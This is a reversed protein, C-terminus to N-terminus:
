GIPIVLYYQANVESNVVVDLATSNGNKALQDKVYTSVPLMYTPAFSQTGYTHSSTSIPISSVETTYQSAWEKIWLNSAVDSAQQSVFIGLAVVWFWWSGMSSLYLKMVPWKVAGTAKTEYLLPRSLAVLLLWLLMGILAVPNACERMTTNAIMRSSTIYEVM